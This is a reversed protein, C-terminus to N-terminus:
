ADDGFLAAFYSCDTLDSQCQPDPRYRYEGPQRDKAGGRVNHRDCAGRGGRGALCSQPAPPIVSIILGGIRFLM